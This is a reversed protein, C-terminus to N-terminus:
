RQEFRFVIEDNSLRLEPRRQRHAHRGNRGHCDCSPMALQLSRHETHRAKSVHRRTHLAKTRKTFTVEGEILSHCDIDAVREKCEMTRYQQTDLQMATDAIAPKPRRRM